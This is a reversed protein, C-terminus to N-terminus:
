FHGFILKQRPFLKFHLKVFNKKSLKNEHFINFKKKTFNIKQRSKRLNEPRSHLLLKKAYLIDEYEGKSTQLLSAVIHHRNVFNLSTKFNKYNKQNV